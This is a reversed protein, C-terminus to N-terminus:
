KENLYPRIMTVSILSIIACVFILLSVQQVQRLQKLRFDITLEIGDENDKRRIVFFM